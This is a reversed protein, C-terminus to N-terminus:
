WTDEPLPSAHLFRESDLRQEEVTEDEGFAADMRARVHQEEQQRLYQEVARQIFRSRSLESRAVAKDLAQLVDRSISIAIKHVHSM